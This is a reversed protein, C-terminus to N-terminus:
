REKAYRRAILHRRARPKKRKKGAANILVGTTQSYVAVSATYALRYM